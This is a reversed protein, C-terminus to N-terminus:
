SVIEGSYYIPTSGPGTEIKVGGDDCIGKYIGRVMENDSPHHFVIPKNMLFRSMRNATDIIENGKGPEKKMKELWKFLISSLIPNIDEPRYDKMSPAAMKMSIAKGALEVPFDGPVHNLNIGIGAICFVEERLIINEILIGAMKRNDFIVDNPWKLGPEIGTLEEITQIVGIGVVLPLLHLNDLAKIVFGFSSYLGKGKPSVWVRKERGRGETQGTSTVLVPLDNKLKEMNSKLYTNTSDCEDIRIIKLFGPYNMMNIM